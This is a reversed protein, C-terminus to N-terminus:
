NGLLINLNNTRTIKKNGSLISLTINVLAIEKGGEIKKTFSLTEVEIPKSTIAQSGQKGKKLYLIKNESYILTPTDNEIKATLQIEETPTDKEIDISTAEKITKTIVQTVFNLQGSIENQASEDIQTNSISVFIMTIIAIIIALIGIYILIEILSFGKKFFRKM